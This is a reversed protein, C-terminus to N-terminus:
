AEQQANVAANPAITETPPILATQRPQSDSRYDDRGGKNSHGRGRNNNFNGRNNNRGRGRNNNRGNGFAQNRNSNNNRPRDNQQYSNSQKAPAINDLKQMITAQELRLKKIELDKIEMAQKDIHAQGMSQKVNATVVEQAERAKRSSILDHQLLQIVEAANQMATDKNRVVERHEVSAWAPTCGDIRNKTGHDREYKAAIAIASTITGVKDKRLVHAHVDPTTSLGNIFSVYALHVAVHPMMKASGILSKLEDAYHHVSQKKGRVKKQITHWIDCRARNRGYRVELCKIMDEYGWHDQDVGADKLVTLAEGTLAYTLHTKLEQEDYQNHEAATEFRTKFVDFDRGNFVPPPLARAMPKRKLTSSVSERGRAKTPAEKRHRPLPKEVESESSEETSGDESEDVDLPRRQDKDPSDGGAKWEDDHDQRHRYNDRAGKKHSTTNKRRRKREKEMRQSDAKLEAMVREETARRKARVVRRKSSAVKAQYSKKRYEPREPSSDEESGVLEPVTDLHDRAAHANKPQTRKSREKEGLAKRMAQYRLDDADDSESEEGSRVLDPLEDSVGEVESSADQANFDDDSTTTSRAPSPVAVRKSTSAVATPKRPTVVRAPSPAAVRRAPSPTVRLPTVSLNVSNTKQPTSMTKSPKAIAKSVKSTSPQPAKTVSLVPTSKGVRGRTTAGDKSTISM